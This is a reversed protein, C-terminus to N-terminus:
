GVGAAGPLRRRQGGRGHGAPARRHDRAAAARRLPRRRLAGAVDAPACAASLREAHSPEGVRERLRRWLEPQWGDGEGDVWARLMAPRHVAYRDYLDAIHRVSTLRRAVPPADASTEARRLYAALPALWPEDLSAEVVELLPWVSRASLWPDTGWDLGAAAAVAGNVLRGPFPFEVNACVGDARGPSTGLVTSLRQTLWREVGRTPVAIVEAQFPDTLPSSVVNGLTDVLGDAREARHHSVDRRYRGRGRVICSRLRVQAPPSRGAQGIGLCLCPAVPETV